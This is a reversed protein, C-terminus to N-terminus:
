HERVQNWSVQYRVRNMVQISVPDMVQDWGQNWVQISVQHKLIKM